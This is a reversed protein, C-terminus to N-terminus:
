FTHVDPIFWGHALKCQWDQYYTPMTDKDLIAESVLAAYRKDAASHATVIDGTSDFRM